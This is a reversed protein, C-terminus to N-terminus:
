NLACDARRLWAKHDAILQEKTFDANRNVYADYNDLIAAADLVWQRNSCQTELNDFVVDVASQVLYRPVTLLTVNSSVDYTCDLFSGGTPCSFSGRRGLLIEHFFLSYMASYALVTLYIVAKLLKGFPGFLWTFLAQIISIATNIPKKIVPPLSSRHDDKPLTTRTSPM